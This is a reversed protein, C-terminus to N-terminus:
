TTLSFDTLGPILDHFIGQFHALQNAMMDDVIARFRSLYADRRHRLGKELEAMQQTLSQDDPIGLDTNQGIWGLMASLQHDDLRTWDVSKPAKLALSLFREALERPAGGSDFLELSDNLLGLSEYSQFSLVGLEPSTYHIPAPLRFGRRQPNESESTM